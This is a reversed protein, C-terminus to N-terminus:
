PLGESHCVVIGVFLWHCLLTHLIHFYKLAIYHKRSKSKRNKCKKTTPETRYILSVWTAKRACRLIVDRITDYVTWHYHSSVVSHELFCRREFFCLYASIHTFLVTSFHSKTNGLTFRSCRGPLTFLHRFYDHWIQGRNVYWFNNFDTWKQRTIWFIFFTSTKLVCDTHRNNSPPDLRSAYSAFRTQTLRLHGRGSTLQNQHIETELALRLYFTLFLV